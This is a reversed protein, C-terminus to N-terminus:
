NTAFIAYIQQTNAADAASAEEDLYFDTVYQSGTGVIPRDLAAYNGLGTVLAGPTELAEYSEQGQVTWRTILHEISTSTVFLARLEYRATTSLAARLNAGTETPVGAVMAAAGAVYPARVNVRQVADDLELVIIVTANGGVTVTMTLNENEILEAGAGGLIKEIDIEKAMDALTDALCPFVMTDAPHGSRTLTYRLGNAGMAKAKVIGMAKPVTYTTQNRTIGNEYILTAAYTGAGAATTM